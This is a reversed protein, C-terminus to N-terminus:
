NKKLLTTKISHLIHVSRFLLIFYILMVLFFLAWRFNMHGIQYWHLFAIAIILIFLSSLLGFRWNLSKFIPMKGYKEKLMASMVGFSFLSAFVSIVLNTAKHIQFAELLFTFIIFLLVPFYTKYKEHKKENEKSTSNMFMNRKFLILNEYVKM